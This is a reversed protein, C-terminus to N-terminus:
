DNRSQRLSLSVALIIIIGRAIMQESVSLGMLLLGNNLMGIVISGIITGIITGKGGTFSTGGIVVAAIVSMNDNEGLTYRAGHLRGAYLIGAFSAALASIAMAAIKIREVKIGSFRAASENGGVALVARGFPTKRYFVHGILMVVITWIFLTSIPGIDGAGFIFNFEPNTIPVAELNTMTRAIGAFVSSTGLTVLFAPIRVKAVIIGNILGCILGVGLGSFLAPLWGANRLVISATLASMAVVAGTSLDILGASIAFTMGVATVSIMATQRLINMMNSYSLFGKDKLIISFIILVMLFSIYVIYKKYDIKKIKNSM